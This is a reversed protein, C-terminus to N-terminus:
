LAAGALDGPKTVKYYGPPFSDADSVSTGTGIYLVTTKYGLDNLHEILYETSADTTQGMIMIVTTGWPLSKLENQIFDAFIIDPISTTKALAELINVLQKTGGGPLIRAPLQSDALKTNVFLFQPPVKFSSLKSCTNM